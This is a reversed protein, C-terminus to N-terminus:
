CEEVIIMMRYADLGGVRLLFAFLSVFAGFSSQLCYYVWFWRDRVGFRAAQCLFVALRFSVGPFLLGPHAEQGHSQVVPRCTGCRRMGHTLLRRQVCSSKGDAAGELAADRWQQQQQQRGQGPHRPRQQDRRAPLRAPRPSDRGAAAAGHSSDSRFHLLFNICLPPTPPPPSNSLSECWMQSTHMNAQAQSNANSRRNM